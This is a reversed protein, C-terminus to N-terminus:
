WISKLKIRRIEEKEKGMVLYEPLILRFFKDNHVFPTFGVGNSIDSVGKSRLRWNHRIFGSIGWDGINFHRKVKDNIDYTFDIIKDDAVGPALYINKILDYEHKYPKKYKGVYRHKHIIYGKNDALYEEDNTFEKSPFNDELDFLFIPMDIYVAYTDKGIKLFKNIKTKPIKIQNM